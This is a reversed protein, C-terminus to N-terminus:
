WSSRYKLCWGDLASSSIVKELIEETEKLQELYWEDYAQGGFYFGSMNPLLEDARSTDAIVTKVTDLLTRLQESEVEYEDCDDTGDQVNKVFWAHIANAKRWYGVQFRVSALTATDPMNPFTRSIEQTITNTNLTANAVYPHWVAYLYM